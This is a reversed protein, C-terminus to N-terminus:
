NRPAKRAGGAALKEIPDAPLPYSLLEVADAAALSSM